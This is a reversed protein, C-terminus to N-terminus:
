PLRIVKGAQLDTIHTVMVFQINLEKALGLLVRCLAPRNQESVGVFPEDLVVLRRVAPRSLVLAAVRLAFAAVNLVGGEVGDEPGMPEEAGKRFELRAETKGRKKEFVVDFTYPNPFVAALCRSVISSIHAHAERQCAEAIKQIIEGATTADCSALLTAAEKKSAAAATEALVERRAISRALSAEAEEFTRM